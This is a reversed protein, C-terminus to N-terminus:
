PLLHRDRLRRELEAASRFVVADMGLAHAVATNREKDDVFLCQQPELALKALMLRYIEPDPKRLGVRASNVIIDFLDMLGQQEILVELYPTANSLLGIKYRRHLRRVLVVMTANLEEYAFPNHKFPELAPPVRGGLADCIHQWYEDAAIKGTSVSYWHEGVFFLELLAGTALGLEDECCHLVVNRSRTKTFVGGFDFIIAKMAPAEDSKAREHNATVRKMM